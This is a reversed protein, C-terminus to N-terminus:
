VRVASYGAEEVAALVKADDIEGEATVNLKGTQASVQIDQVGPIEGVEERVSMECHGCTMGTVQYNNSAM